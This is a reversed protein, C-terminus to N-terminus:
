LPTLLGTASVPFILYLKKNCIVIDCSGYLWSFYRLCVGIWPGEVFNRVLIRLVTLIMLAFFTQSAIVTLFSALSGQGTHSQQNTAAKDQLWFTTPKIGLQPVHRPQPNSGQDLHMHSAERDCLHKERGEERGAQRELLLSFFINKPSSLFFLFSLSLISIRRSPIRSCFLPM